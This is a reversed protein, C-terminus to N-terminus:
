PSAYTSRDLTVALSGKAPFELYHNPMYFPGVVRSFFTAIEVTAMSSDKRRAGRTSRVHLANAENELDVYTHRSTVRSVVCLFNFYNNTLLAHLFCMASINKKLSLLRAPFTGSPM